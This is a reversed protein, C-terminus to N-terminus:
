VGPSSPVGSAAPDVNTVNMPQDNFRFYKDIKDEPTISEGVLTREGRLSNLPYGLYDGPTQDNYPGQNTHEQGLPHLGKDVAIKKPNHLTGLAKEKFKEYSIAKMSRFFRKDTYHALFADKAAEASDFGLMCKQEDIEKFDPGKNTTIVYVIPANENPGIFCDVHDGDLGKTRRIYGYPHKMKTKGATGTHPDKWHRHNGKDTEVSIALDKFERRADLKHAASTKMTHILLGTIAAAKSQWGGAPIQNSEDYGDLHVQRAHQEFANRAQHEPNDVTRLHARGEDSNAPTIVTHLADGM